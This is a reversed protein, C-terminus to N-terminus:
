VHFLSVTRADDMKLEQRVRKEVDTKDIYSLAELQHKIKAREQELVEAADDGPSLNKM